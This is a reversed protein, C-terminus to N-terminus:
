YHSILCKGKLSLIMPCEEKQEAPEKTTTTPHHCHNRIFHVGGARSQVSTLAARSAPSIGDESVGDWFIKEKRELSFCVLLCGGIPTQAPGMEQSSFCLAFQLFIDNGTQPTQLNKM